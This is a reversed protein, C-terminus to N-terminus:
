DCNIQIIVCAGDIDDSFDDVSEIPWVQGGNNDNVEVEVDQPMKQLLTILESVKM